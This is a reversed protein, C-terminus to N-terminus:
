SLRGDDLWRDRSRTRRPVVLRALFGFLEALDGSQVQAAVDLARDRLRAYLADAKDFAGLSEYLAGIAAVAEDHDALGTLREIEPGGGAELAFARLVTPRQAIADLGPFSHDSGADEWDDLDNAVQYAEGVYVCFRHLNDMDIERGAARLGAYLAVEFAPATKLSYAQLADLPRLEDSRWLLEAGQGRCLDIHAAALASLIDAACEPGLSAAEGAVLRAALATGAPADLEYWSV